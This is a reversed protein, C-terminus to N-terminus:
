GLKLMRDLAIFAKKSIKEPLTIENQEDKLAFYVDSLHTLKMDYCKLDKSVIHFLKDPCTKRMTHLIGDETGVIFENSDSKIVYNLLENTSGVFDALKHVDLKAQPHVIFEANPHAKKLDFVDFITLDNHLCCFGPWVEMDLNYKDNIYNGINQDPVFLLTKDGYAKVIKEANSITICVDSMAKIQATSKLYSVIVSDPNKEKYKQLRVATIMDTMPCGAGEVALLVKKDPSLIKATEAMFHVGSFVIIDATSKSAIKSLYLSDGVYDAIDQIDGDQFFHALIIANKEEKLRKIETIMFSKEM